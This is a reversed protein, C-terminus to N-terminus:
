VRGQEIRARERRERKSPVRHGWAGVSRTSASMDWDDFWGARHAQRWSVTHVVFQALEDSSNLNRVKRDSKCM